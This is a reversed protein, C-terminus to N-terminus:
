AHAHDVRYGVGRVTEVYRGGGPADGLKRRLNAVHVDVVHEDGFWERGWMAHLIERRTAARGPEAALTALVDLETPTLGLDRGDRAVTRAAVDVVLDHVRLTRDAPRGRDARRRLLARVRAALVRPSFPKTLYDDAGAALGRVVDEEDDRATLMLIFADGDARLRRAVELGDMGPLMLDLVVVDPRHRHAAALGGPGDHAVTCDLGLRDLYRAVVAALAEEDDVVLVRGGPAPVEGTM